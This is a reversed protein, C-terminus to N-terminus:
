SAEKSASRNEEGTGPHCLKQLRPAQCSAGLTAAVRTDHVKTAGARAMEWIQCWPSQAVSHHPESDRRIGKTVRKSKWKDKEPIFIAEGKWPSEEM